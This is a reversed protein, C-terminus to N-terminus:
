PYQMKQSHNNNVFYTLAVYEPSGSSFVHELFTKQMNLIDLFNQLLPFGALCKSFICPLIKFLCLSLFSETSFVNTQVTWLTEWAKRHLTHSFNLGFFFYFFFLVCIRSMSTYIEYFFSGSIIIQKFAANQM